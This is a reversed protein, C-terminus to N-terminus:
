EIRDRNLNHPWRTSTSESTSATNSYAFSPEPVTDADACTGCLTLCYVGVPTGATAVDLDTSAGCNECREDLPCADTADLDLAPHDIM